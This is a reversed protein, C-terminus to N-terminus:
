PASGSLGLPQAPAIAVCGIVARGKAPRLLATTHGAGTEIVASDGPALTAAGAELAVEAAGEIACLVAGGAEVRVEQRRTLDLATMTAVVRGRRAMLNLDRVPGGALRTSVASEGRFRVVELPGLRHALGDITLTASGPPLMMLLRDVGPFSSFPGSRDLDAIALRWDFDDLGAGPPFVAVETTM